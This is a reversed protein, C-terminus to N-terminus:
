MKYQKPQQEPADKQPDESKSRIRVYVDLLTATDRINGSVTMLAEEVLPHQDALSALRESIKHLQQVEQLITEFPMPTPSETTLRFHPFVDQVLQLTLAAGLFTLFLGLVESVLIEGAHGQDKDLGRLSGDATVQVSNLSPVEARALTLARSLLARYGDVGALACVPQRLKQCVTVAAAMTPESSKNAVAEYALLRRALVRTEPPVM